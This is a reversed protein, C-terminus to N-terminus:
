KKLQELVQFPNEKEVVPLEVEDQLYRAASCDAEEHSCVVPIALILEDEIFEFLSFHKDDVLLPEYQEPLTAEEEESEILAMNIPSEITVEMPEMCRQCPLQLTASLTGQLTPTDSQDLGFNLSVQVKGERNALISEAREFRDIPLQQELSRGSRAFQLPSIQDPFPESM